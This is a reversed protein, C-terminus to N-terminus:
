AELFKDWFEEWKEQSLFVSLLIALSVLPLAIAASCVGLVLRYIRSPPNVTKKSLSKDNNESM